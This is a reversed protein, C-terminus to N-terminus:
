LVQYLKSSQRMFMLTEANLGRNVSAILMARDRHPESLIRALTDYSDNFFASQRYTRSM